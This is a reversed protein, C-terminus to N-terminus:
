FGLANRVITLIIEAGVIIGAGVLTGKFEDYAEKRKEQDSSIVIKLGIVSWRLLLLGALVWQAIGLFSNVTKEWKIQESPKSTDTFGFILLNTIGVSLVGTIRKIATKM